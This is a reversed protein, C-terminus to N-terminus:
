VADFRSKAQQCFAIDSIGQLHVEDGFYLYMNLNAFMVVEDDSLDEPERGILGLFHEMVEYAILERPGYPGYEAEEPLVEGRGVAILWGLSEREFLEPNKEDLFGFRTRPRPATVESFLRNMEASTPEPKNPLTTTSPAVTVKKIMTALYLAGIIAAYLVALFPFASSLLLIALVHFAWNM